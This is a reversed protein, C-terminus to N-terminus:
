RRSAGGFPNSFEPPVAEGFAGCLAVLMKGVEEVVWKAKQGSTVDLLDDQSTPRAM